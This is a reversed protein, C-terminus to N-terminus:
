NCWAFPNLLRPGLQGYHYLVSEKDGSKIAANMAKIEQRVMRLSGKTLFIQNSNYKKDM